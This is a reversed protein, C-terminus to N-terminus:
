SSSSAPLASTVTLRPHRHCSPPTTTLLSPKTDDYRPYTGVPSPHNYRDPILNKSTVSVHM